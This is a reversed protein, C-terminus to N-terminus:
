AKIWNGIWKKTTTNYQRKYLVGNIIKYRWEINSATPEPETKTYTNNNKLESQAFVTFDLNSYTLLTCIILIAFTIKNKM